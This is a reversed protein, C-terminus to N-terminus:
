GARGARTLVFLGSLLIAAGIISQANATEGVLTVALLFASLPEILTFTVATGVPVRRLGWTFCWYALATAGLGLFVLLALSTLSDIWALDVVLLGPSIIVAAAGFVLAAVWLPGLHTPMQASIVAYAAYSVGAGAAFGLGLLPVNSVGPALIVLAGGIIAMGQGLLPLAGPLARERFATYLAVWIPASGLAVLTGMAVGAQAVGFFFLANYAAMSLGALIVARKPLQRWQPLPGTLARAFILLGAGGIILRLAGVALPDRAVPLFAQITGTTGWLVAAAAVALLGMFFSNM